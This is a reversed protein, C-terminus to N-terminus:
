LSAGFREAVDVASRVADEHFGYGFYSGCFWTNSSGNMDKLRPQTAMSELTYQPHTFVTQDVITEDAIRQSQNLSVFYNRNTQLRQLRNMHYTVSVSETEPANARVVNWSAWARSPGPMVTEDSHLVAENEEYRWAGLLASEEASPDALLGLAEDAHTAVVIHDFARRTGDGLAVTGGRESRTITQAPRSLNLADGLHARIKKVYSHSGGRVYKWAPRDNVSLLGHNRFFGLFAKAPFDMISGSPASWIASAMPALYNAALGTGYNGRGLYEGLTLAELGGSELDALATRNFRLVDVIMRWHSLNWLNSPRAFLTSLNTGAYAYGSRECCYSFSMDSDEVPVELRELLRTLLPYNRHNMVIFGTDIPTGADPGDPVVVTRTHGGAYDNREFLTVHHKQSLLWAATLGAVGSGVVAVQQGERM